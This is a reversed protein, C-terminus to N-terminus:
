SNIECISPLTIYNDDLQDGSLQVTKYVANVKYKVLEEQVKQLKGRLAARAAYQEQLSPEGM